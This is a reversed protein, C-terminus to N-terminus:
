NRMHLSRSVFFALAIAIAVVIIVSALRCLTPIDDTIQRDAALHARAQGLTPM